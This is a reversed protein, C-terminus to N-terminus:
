PPLSRCEARELAADVLGAVDLEKEVGQLEQPTSRTSPWRPMLFGCCDDHPQISISYTRIRQALDIIERKDLGIVPRIVPMGVAHDVTVLNSLTQSSVQSLSEGTVIAKAGEGQAIREALRLMFRRYLIIRYRAPTRAAVERQLEAFPVLYVKSTQRFRGLEKVLDIVKRQSARGTFPFSHFHVFVVECGRKMMQYIAVPSDIGGSILGVVRGSAGVPLGGPGEIRNFFLLVRDHLWEVSIRLDPNKLDVPKGTEAQVFAGLERNIEPSTLHFTKDGRKTDIAFSGYGTQPLHERLIEKVRELDPPGEFARAFYSIGFIRGIRQAVPDWPFEDEVTVLLRGYLRETKVPVLGRLAQRINRMLRYEFRPRNKGKLGIEDYHVVISNREEAM